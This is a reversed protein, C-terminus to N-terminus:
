KLCSIYAILNVEIQSQDYCIDHTKCKADFSDIPEEHAPPYPLTIGCWCGYPIPFYPFGCPIYEIAMSALNILAPFFLASFTFKSEFKIYIPDQFYVKHWM